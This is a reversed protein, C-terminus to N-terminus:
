YTAVESFAIRPRDVGLHILRPPKFLELRSLIREAEPALCNPPYLNRHDDEDPDEGPQQLFLSASRSPETYRARCWALTLRPLERRRLKWCRGDARGERM